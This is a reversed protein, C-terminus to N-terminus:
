TSGHPFYKVPDILILMFKKSFNPQASPLWRVLIDMKIQKIPTLHKTTSLNLFKAVKL